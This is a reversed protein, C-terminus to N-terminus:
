IPCRAIRQPQSHRPIGNSEGIDRNVHIRIEPYVRLRAAVTSHSTM